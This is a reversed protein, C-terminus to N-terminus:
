YGRPHLAYRSPNTVRRRLSEETALGASELMTERTADELVVVNGESRSKKIAVEGVKEAIPELEAAIGVREEDVELEPGSKTPM